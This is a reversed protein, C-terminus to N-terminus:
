RASRRHNVWFVLDIVDAVIRSATGMGPEGAGADLASCADVTACM